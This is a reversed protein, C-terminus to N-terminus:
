VHFPFGEPLEIIVPRLNLKVMQRLQEADVRFEVEDGVDCQVGHMQMLEAVEESIIMFAVLIPLQRRQEEQKAEARLKRDMLEDLARQLLSNTSLGSSLTAPPVQLDENDETESSDPDDSPLRINEFAFYNRRKKPAWTLKVRENDGELVRKRNAKGSPTQIHEDFPSELM